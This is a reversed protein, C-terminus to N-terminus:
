ALFVLGCTAAALWLWRDRCNRWLAVLPLTFVAGIFFQFFVRVRTALAPNVGFFAQRHLFRPREWGVYYDAMEPHRYSPAPEVKQWLFTPRAKYALKM